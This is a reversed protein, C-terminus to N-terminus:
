GGVPQKKKRAPKRRAGRREKARIEDTMKRVEDAVPDNAFMGVSSKWWPEKPEQQAQLMAKIEKVDAELRELRAEWDIPKGNKM